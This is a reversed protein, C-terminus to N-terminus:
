ISMIEVFDATCITPFYCCKKSLTEEAGRQLKSHKLVATSSVNYVMGAPAKSMLLRKNGKCHVRALSEQRNLQRVSVSFRVAIKQLIQANCNLCLSIAETPM